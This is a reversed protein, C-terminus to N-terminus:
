IRTASGPDSLEPVGDETVFGNVVDDIAEDIAQALRLEIEDGPQGTLGLPILESARFVRATQLSIERMM